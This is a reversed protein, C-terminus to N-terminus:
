PLPDLSRFRQSAVLGLACALDTQEPGMALAVGISLASARLAVLWISGPAPACAEVRSCTRWADSGTLSWQWTLRSPSAPANGADPQGSPASGGEPSSPDYPSTPWKGLVAEEWWQVLGKEDTVSATDEFVKSVFREEAALADQFNAYTVHQGNKWPGFQFKHGPAVLFDHMAADESFRYAPTAPNESPPRMYIARDGVVVTVFRKVVAYRDDDTLAGFTSRVMGMFEEPQMRVDQGVPESSRDWSNSILCRWQNKALKPPSYRCDVSGQFGLDGFAKIDEVDLKSMTPDDLIIAEQIEGPKNRFVDFMKGRRFGAPRRRVLHRAHWRGLAMAVAAVWPTKGGGPRGLLLPGISRGVALILPLIVLVLVGKFDATNTAVLPFFYQSDTDLNAKLVNGCAREVIHLPWGRVPSENHINELAWALVDNPTTGPPCHKNIFAIGARTEERTPAWRQGKEQEKVRADAKPIVAAHMLHFGHLKSVMAQYAKKVGWPSQMWLPAGAQGHCLKAAADPKVPSGLLMHRLIDVSNDANRIIVVQVHSNDPLKSDRAPKLVDPVRDELWWAAKGAKVLGVIDELMKKEDIDGTFGKVVDYVNSTQKVKEVPNLPFEAM